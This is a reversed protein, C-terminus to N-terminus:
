QRIDYGRKNYLKFWTHTHVTILLSSIFIYIFIIFIFVISSWGVSWWVYHSKRDKTIFIIYLVFTSMYIYICYFSQYIAIHILSQLCIVKTVSLLNQGKLLFFFGIGRNKISLILISLIGVLILHFICAEETSYKLNQLYM